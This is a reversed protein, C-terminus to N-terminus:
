LLGQDIMTTLEVTKIALYKVYEIKDQNTLEKNEKKKKYDLVYSDNELFDFIKKEYKSFM